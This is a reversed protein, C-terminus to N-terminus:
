YVPTEMLQQHLQHATQMGLPAPSRLGPVARGPQGQGARLHQPHELWPDAPCAAAGPSQGWGRSAWASCPAFGRGFGAVEGGRLVARLFAGSPFPIAALVCFRPIHAPGLELGLRALVQPSSPSTVEGGRRREPALPARVVQLRPSNQGPLILARARRSDSWCDGVDGGSLPIPCSDFGAFSSQGSSSNPATGVTTETSPAGASM